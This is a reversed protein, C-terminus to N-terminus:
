TVVVFAPFASSPPLTLSNSFTHRNAEKLQGEIPSQIFPPISLGRYPQVYIRNFTVLAFFGTTCTISPRSVYSYFSYVTMKMGIGMNIHMLDGSSYIRFLPFSLLRHIILVEISEARYQEIDNFRKLLLM